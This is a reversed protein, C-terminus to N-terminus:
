CGWGRVYNHNTHPPPHTHTTIVNFIYERLLKWTYLVIHNIITVVGSSIWKIAPPKYSKVLMERYKEVGHTRSVLWEVSIWKWLYNLWSFAYYVWPFQTYDHSPAVFSPNSRSNGLGHSRGSNVKYLDYQSSIDSFKKKRGSKCMLCIEGVPSDLIM